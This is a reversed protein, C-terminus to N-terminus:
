SNSLGCVRTSSSHALLQKSFPASLAPRERGGSEARRSDSSSSTAWISRAPSNLWRRGRVLAARLNTLNGERMEPFRHYLHEGIM